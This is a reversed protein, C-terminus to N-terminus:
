EHQWSTSARTHSMPLPNREFLTIVCHSVQAAVAVPLGDHKIGGYEHPFAGTPSDAALTAGDLGSQVARNALGPKPRLEAKQLPDSDRDAEHAPTRHERTGM